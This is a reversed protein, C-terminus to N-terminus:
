LSFCLCVSLFVYLLCTSLSVFVLSILVCVHRLDEGGCVAIVSLFVPLCVGGFCVPSFCVACVFVYM